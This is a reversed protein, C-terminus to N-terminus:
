CVPPLLVHGDGLSHAGPYRTPLLTICVSRSSPPTITHVSLARHLSTFAFPCARTASSGAARPPVLTPYRGLGFRRGAGGQGALMVLVNREMAHADRLYDVLKDRLRDRAM